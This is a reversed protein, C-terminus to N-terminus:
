LLADNQLPLEPSDSDLALLAAQRLAGVTELAFWFPVRRTILM